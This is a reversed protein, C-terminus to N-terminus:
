VEKQQIRIREILINHIATACDGCLKLRREVYTHSVEDPYKGVNKTDLFVGSKCDQQGCNECQFNQKELM